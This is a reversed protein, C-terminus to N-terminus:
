NLISIRSMFLFQILSIKSITKWHINRKSFKISNILLNFNQFNIVKSKMTNCSIMRFSLIVIYKYKIENYLFLFVQLMHEVYVLAYIKMRLFM